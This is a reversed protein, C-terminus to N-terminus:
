GFQKVLYLNDSGTLRFRGAFLMEGVLRDMILALSDNLEITNAVQKQTKLIGTFIATVITIFIVFVTMAVLLEVLTFGSIKNLM